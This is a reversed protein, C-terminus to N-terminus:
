SIFSRKVYFPTLAKQCVERLDRNSEDLPLTLLRNIQTCYNYAYLVKAYFDLSQWNETTLFPNIPRFGMRISFSLNQLTAEVLIEHCQMQQAWLVAYNLLLAALGREREKPAIQLSVIRGEFGRLNQLIDMVLLGSPTTPLYLPTILMLRRKTLGKSQEGMRQLLDELEDTPYDPVFQQIASLDRSLPPRVVFGRAMLAPILLKEAIIPDKLSREFLRQVIDDDFSLIKFYRMMLEHAVPSQLVADQGIGKMELLGILPPTTLSKHFLVMIPDQSSAKIRIVINREQQKGPAEPLAPAPFTPIPLEPFDDNLFDSWQPLRTLQSGCPSNPVYM